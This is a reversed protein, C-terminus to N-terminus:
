KKSMICILVHGRASRLVRRGPSTPRSGVPTFCLGRTQIMDKVRCTAVKFGAKVFGDALVRRRSSPGSTEAMAAMPILLDRM